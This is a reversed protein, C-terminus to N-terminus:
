PKLEAPKIDGCDAALWHATVTTTTTKAKGGSTIVGSSKVVYKESNTFTAEGDGEYGIQPCSSHWKWSSTTRSSYDVKCGNPQEGWHGREITARDYCTKRGGMDGAEMGREKMAAEMKKRTEPSMNKMRESMDPAKQGNAESEIQVQWLGPKMPPMTQSQVGHAAIILACAVLPLRFRRIDM